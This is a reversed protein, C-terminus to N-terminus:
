RDALTPGRLVKVLDELSTVIAGGSDAIFTEIQLNV